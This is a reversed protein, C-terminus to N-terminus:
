LIEMLFMSASSNAVRLTGFLHQVTDGQLLFGNMFIYLIGTVFYLSSQLEVLIVGEGCHDKSQIILLIKEFSESKM